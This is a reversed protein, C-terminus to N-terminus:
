PYRGKRYEQYITDYKNRLNEHNLFLATADVRYEGFPAKCGCGVAVFQPFNHQVVEFLVRYTARVAPTNERDNIYYWDKVCRPTITELIIANTASDYLLFQYPKLYFSHLRSTIASDLISSDDFTSDTQMKCHRRKIVYTLRRSLGANVCARDSYLASVILAPAKRKLRHRKAIQMSFQRSAILISDGKEMLASKPVAASMRLIPGDLQKQPQFEVHENASLDIRQVWKPIKNPIVRPAFQQSDPLAPQVQAGVPLWAMGALLLFCLSRKSMANLKSPLLKLFAAAIM